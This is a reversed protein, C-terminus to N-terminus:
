SADHPLERVFHDGEPRYRAATFAAISPENGPRIMAEIRAVEPHDSKLRAEGQMLLQPGIGRGRGAPTLYASVTATGAAVDFRLVGVAEGGAEGILLRRAPNSLAAEFWTVHEEWPIPGTDSSASRIDPQNRWHWIDRCDAAIATRVTVAPRLLITAVREAGRGDVMHAAAASMAGLREPAAALEGLAKCLRAEYREGGPVLLAAGARVLARVNDHQNDAVSTVLTPLGLCAREWSTTGGAGIALDAAAMLAAMDSTDVHLRACPDSHIAQRLVSLHPADLGLVVDVNIAPGCVRRIAHLAAVSMNGADVAGFSILIRQIGGDRPRLSARLSLFEPRLMAYRPGFLTLANPPVLADYRSARDAGPTVDILTDCDHPRDALDDIVACRKAKPRLAREWQWDLGYHDVVLLEIPTAGLAQATAEADSEISFAGAPLAILQHGAATVLANANGPLDRVVFTCSLGKSALNGALALCRRIHGSGIELSSDARFLADM